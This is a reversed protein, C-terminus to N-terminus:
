PTVDINRLYSIFTKRSMDGERSAQITGNKDIFFTTPYANVKYKDNVAQSTELNNIGSPADVLLNLHEFKNDIVYQTSKEATEGSGVALMTFKEKLQGAVENLAPMEERCPGCWSGWFNLVVPTGKLKALQVASNLSPSYMAFDPAPDFLSQSFVAGFAFMGLLFVRKTVRSKSM